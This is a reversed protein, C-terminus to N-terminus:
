DGPGYARCPPGYADSTGDRNAGTEDVDAAAGFPKDEEGNM